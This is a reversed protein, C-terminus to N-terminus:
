RLVGDGVLVTRHPEHRTRKIKISRTASSGM